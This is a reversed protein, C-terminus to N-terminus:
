GTTSLSPPVPSCVNLIPQQGQGANAPQTSAPQMPVLMAQSHTAPQVPGGNFVPGHASSSNALLGNPGHVTRPAVAVPQHLHIPGAQAQHPPLQDM